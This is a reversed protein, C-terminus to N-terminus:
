YEEGKLWPTRVAEPAYVRPTDGCMADREPWNLSVWLAQLDQEVFRAEAARCMAYEGAKEYARYGTLGSYKCAAAVVKSRTGDPLAELAYACEAQYRSMGPTAELRSSPVFTVVALGCLQQRVGDWYQQCRKMDFGNRQMYSDAPMILVETSVAEELSPILGKEGLLWAM